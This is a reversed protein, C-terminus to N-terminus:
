MVVAEQRRSSGRPPVARFMFLLDDLIERLGRAGLELDEAPSLLHHWHKRGQQREIALTRDPRRSLRGLVLEYSRELHRRHTAIRHRSWGLGDEIDSTTAERNPRRKLYGRLRDCDECDTM